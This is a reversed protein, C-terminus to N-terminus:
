HQRMKDIKSRQAISRKMYEYKKRQEAFKRDQEVRKKDYEKRERAIKEANIEMAKRMQANKKDSEMRQRAVEEVFEQKVLADLYNFREDYTAESWPMGKENAFHVRVTYPVSKLEPGYMEELTEAWGCFSCFFLFFFFAFVNLFITPPPYKKNM